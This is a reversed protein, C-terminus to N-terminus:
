RLANELTELGMSGLALAKTHFTKLDFDERQEHQARLQQWIRKGVAYSPAQGPWGLYRTFEFELVGPTEHLHEQLFAFGTEVDWVKGGWAAPAVFRCHVGIDFVVRAARMRQADLMGLYDGPDALYGLEQMLDEAYLAWGEGHGSVWLWNRRWSNLQQANLMATAIQLHHGPVGEHFVTTTQQWTTFTDEGAPVSWWMRGPRSFDESPGTYYIGGDQTPAIMAEVYDMPAPIHFHQKMDQITRDSHDQMWAQLAETGHLVRAPDASLLQRAQDISAGPRLVEAVRRQEGIIRELEALGWEYTEALDVQAGLFEQSALAYYDQGVADQVRAQPYLEDVLYTAFQDYAASAQEVAANLDRLADNPLNDATAALQTFFTEATAKAQTICADVQRRAPPQNRTVATELSRRYGSLAVDVLSLRATINRWDDVTDTPMLDFTSRIDQVPSALNNMAVVGTAHLQREVGLRETLAQRTVEDQANQSPLAELQRLVEAQVADLADAAEPSYDPMKDAYGPVGLASAATPYFKALRDAYDEALRDIVTESMATM